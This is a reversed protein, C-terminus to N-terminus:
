HKGPHYGGLMAVGEADDYAACCALAFGDPEGQAAAIVPAHEAARTDYHLAMEDNCRHCLGHVMGVAVGCGDCMLDKISRVEIGDRRAAALALALANVATTTTIM